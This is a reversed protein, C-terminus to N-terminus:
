ISTKCIFKGRDTSNMLSARMEGGLNIIEEYSYIQIDASMKSNLTSKDGWLLIIFRIEATQFLIDRLRNFFQPNDVIVAVSLYFCAIKLFWM